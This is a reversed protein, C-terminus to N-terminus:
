CSASSDTTCLSRTRQVGPRAKDRHWGSRITLVVTSTMSLLQVNNNNFAICDPLEPCRGHCQTARLCLPLSKVRRLLQELSHVQVVEGLAGEPILQQHALKRDKGLLVAVQGESCRLARECYQPRRPLSRYTQCAIISIPLASACPCFQTPCLLAFSKRPLKHRANVPDLVVLPLPMLAMAPLSNRARSRGMLSLRWVKMAQPGTTCMSSTGGAGHRQLVHLSNCSHCRHWPLHIPSSGLAVGAAVGEACCHRQRTSISPHRSSTGKASLM